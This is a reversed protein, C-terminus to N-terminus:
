GRQSQIMGIHDISRLEQNLDPQASDNEVARRNREAAFVDSNLFKFEGHSPLLICGLYHFWGLTALFAFSSKFGAM